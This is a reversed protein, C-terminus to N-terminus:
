QWNLRDAMNLSGRITRHLKGISLASIAEESTTFYLLAVALTAISLM